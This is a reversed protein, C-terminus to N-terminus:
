LISHNTRRHTPLSVPEGGPQDTSQCNPFSLIPCVLSVTIPKTILYAKIGKMLFFPSLSKRKANMPKSNIFALYVIPIEGIVLIFNQSKELNFPCHYLSIAM